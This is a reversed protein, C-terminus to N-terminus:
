DEDKKKKPIPMWYNIWADDYTYDGNRWEIVSGTADMREKRCAVAHSGDPFMVLVEQGLGPMAEKANIWM